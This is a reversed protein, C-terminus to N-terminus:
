NTFKFSSIIGDFAKSYGSRLSAEKNQGKSKDAPSVYVYENIKYQLNNHFISLYKTSGFVLSNLFESFAKEGGIKLNSYSYDIFKNQLAVPICNVTVDLIAGSSFGSPLNGADGFGQPYKQSEFRFRGIEYISAQSSKDNRCESLLQAINDESYVAKGEATWSQLTALKFGYYKNQIAYNKTQGSSVQNDDAKGLGFYNYLFNGLLFIAFLILLIVAVLVLVRTIKIKLNKQSKTMKNKLKSKFGKVNMLLVV